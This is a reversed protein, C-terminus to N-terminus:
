SNRCVFKHIGRRVACLYCLEAYAAARAKLASCLGVSLSRKGQSGYALLVIGTVAFAYGFVSARTVPPTDIALRHLRLRLRLQLWEYLSYFFISGAGAPPVTSPLLQRKPSYFRCFFPLKDDGDRSRLSGFKLTRLVVSRLRPHNMSAYGFILVGPLAHFHYPARYRRLRLRLRPLGVSLPSPTLGFGHAAAGYTHM